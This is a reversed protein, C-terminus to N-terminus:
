TKKDEVITSSWNEFINLINTFDKKGYGQSIAYKWLQTTNEGVFMPVQNKEALEMCLKLDKYALDMSFGYDFTRNLMYQAVKDETASSRGSSMNLVDLMKRSDLGAKVGLTMAESTATIATSSLLNNILKMMQAQGVEEGIHTIKKGITLLLDTCKTALSRDGATIISLTKQKAGIVGGSVPADLVKINNTQLINAIETSVDQGTTSLDIYEKIKNGYMLGNEGIAVAKVVEPTPLSVLVIDAYDAIKKPSMKKEVNSHSNPL